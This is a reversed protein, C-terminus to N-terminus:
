AGFRETVRTAPTEPLVYEYVLLRQEKRTFAPVLARLIKVCYGDSWNHLIWRLLFVDVDMDGEGGGGGGSGGRPQETFFDHAVFEIRGEFEEPLDKRAQEVTGPLDQVIFRTRTTARALAQSVAGHGGGIDVVMGGGFKDEGNQGRHDLGAWDYGEVLHKLDYGFGKTHYRMAAGFRRGREADKGLVEFIGKGHQLAYATHAPEGDAGYKALADVM